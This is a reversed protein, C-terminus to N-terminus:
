DELLRTMDSASVPHSLLYGQVNDCLQNRLFELQEGKEVGEAVVELGISRAMAIIAMILSENKKNSQIDRIFSQDIKLIKLPFQKLYSLSSYGTGFDDLSTQVGLRDLETLLSNTYEMDQIAVNETIELHLGKSDLGTLSLITAVKKTLETDQFQRASLNISVWFDPHRSDRWIKVQACASRLVHEGIPIIAGTEEAIHIFDKPYLLGRHPHNWRVLAEAGVAKNTTLSVIPQYHIVWEEREVARKLEAELRILEVANTHMTADFIRYQNGGQAKAVYMAADADRLLEDAKTYKENFLAIGISATPFREVAGLMTTTKLQAKIRNAIQLAENIDPISNLLIAFEDGSLRSVTDENRICHMLRNAITILLQDGVGHGLSDNVVKFRDLDLFMVAFLDSPNRKIRELRNQLRDLFLVRNPLGTLPDHVADHALRLEAIKRATIDSQSGAMRYPTNRADRVAMGRSLVWLYKGTAHKIRYECEFHSSTGKLHSVLNAQVIRQDDPHIRNFWEDTGNSIQDDKFGLIEKWRISYYIENTQLNWDWIGDNAARVALAYREESERLKRNMSHKFLAMTINSKLERTDFPKLVFGYAQALMATQLTMTDAQTSIFVVPIDMNDHIQKAAEISGMKGKLRIEILVLDPKLEEVMQVTTEGLSAIGVVIYELDVLIKSLDSAAQTDDEAIVIREKQM